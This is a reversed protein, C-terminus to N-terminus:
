TEKDFYLTYFNLGKEKDFGKEILDRKGHVYVHFNQDLKLVSKFKNKQKNVASASIDFDDSMSVEHTEAYAEKYSEFRENIEDNAIVEEAFEETNFTDKESFYEMADNKLAIRDTKEVDKLEKDAFSKCMKLYTDTHYYNDEKPKIKLFEDKWYQADRSKNTNDVIKLIYGNDKETNFILCGKDLKNINIGEDYDPTFNKETEEIKLFKEKNETKFVGIADVLEDGILCDTIITTYFEGSKIKPHDSKEYLHKAINKSQETFQTEDNFIKGAYSFIENLQIDSEHDFQWFIEDKFSSLFYKLLLTEIIEGQLGIAKESFKVGEEENRNGIKHVILKDLKSDEFNVM